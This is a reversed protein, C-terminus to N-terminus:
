KVNLFDKLDNEHIVWKRGIKQAKVKGNQIYRSVTKTTVGLIEAIESTDYFKLEIIVEKKVESM